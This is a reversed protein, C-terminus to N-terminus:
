DHNWELALSFRDASQALQLCHGLLHERCNHALVEEPSV